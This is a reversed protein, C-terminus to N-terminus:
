RVDKNFSRHARVGGKWQEGRERMFAPCLPRNETASDTGKRAGGEALPIRDQPARVKRQLFIWTERVYWLSQGIKRWLYFICRPESIFRYFTILLEYRKM